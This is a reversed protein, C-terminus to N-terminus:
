VSGGVGELRCARAAEMWQGGRDLCRDQDFVRAIPPLVVVLLVTVLLVKMAFAWFHGLRSAGFHRELQALSARQDPDLPAICYRSNDGFPEEIGYREPGIRFECFLDKRLSCPLIEVGPCSAAIRRALRRGLLASIEFSRLNGQEDLYPYTRM